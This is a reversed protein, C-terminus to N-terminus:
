SSAYIRVFFCSADAFCEILEEIRKGFLAHIQQCSLVLGVSAGVHVLERALQAFEARQNRVEQDVQSARALKLGIRENATEVEGAHPWYNHIVSSWHGHVCRRSCIRRGIGTCGAYETGCRDVLWATGRREPNGAAT